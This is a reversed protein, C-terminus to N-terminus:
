TNRRQKYFGSINKESAGGLDCDRFKSIEYEWKSEVKFMAVIASGAGVFFGLFLLFANFYFFSITSSFGNDGTEALPFDAYDNSISRISICVINSFIFISFSLVSSNSLSFSSIRLFFTSSNSLLSASCSFSLTSNFFSCFLFSNLGLM